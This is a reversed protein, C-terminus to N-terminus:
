QEVEGLRPLDLSEAFPGAAGGLARTLDLLARDRLGLGGAALGRRDGGGDRRLGDGGGGRGAAAGAGDARGHGDAAGRGGHGLARVLLLFLLGDDM